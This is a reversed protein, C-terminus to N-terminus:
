PQLSVPVPTQDSAASRQRLAEALTEAVVANGRVNWHTDTPFYLQEGDQARRRMAPGLPIVQIGRRRCHDAVRELHWEPQAGEGILEAAYDQYVWEKFPFTVVVLRVSHEACLSAARDLAVLTQSLGDRIALDESDPYFHPGELVPRRLNQLIAGDSVTVYRHQDVPVGYRGLGLARKLLEYVFVQVRSDGPQDSSDLPVEQWERIAVGAHGTFLLAPELPGPTTGVAGLSAVNGRGSRDDLFGDDTTGPSWFAALPSSLDPPESGLEDALARLDRDSLEADHLRPRWVKAVLPAEGPAEGLVIKRSGASSRIPRDLTAQGTATGNIFFSVERGEHVTM